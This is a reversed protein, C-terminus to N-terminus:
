KISQLKAKEESLFSSRAAADLTRDVPALAIARQIAVRAKEKDSLSLYGDALSDQANALEPHAWANLQFVALADKTRQQGLLNYGWTNFRDADICSTLNDDGCSAIFVHEAADLGQTNVLAAAELPSPAFSVASLHRVSVEKTEFPVRDIEALAVPDSKLKADLFSLAIKCAEQYGARGTERNWGNLPYNTPLPAHFQAGVMAFSTFDSHHMKEITILTRDSHRFSEVVSLDLPEDGQAGQARRLDLFAARMKEPTYGYSNTLATSLGQFGYTGDLAIVASVDANRLTLIVADIAGVSHGMVAVRTRDVNPEAQLVSWAFEMDRVSLEFDDATRSQFTEQDSPGLLSISAVIYGHSALYEFLIANSNISANLGGFYLVVPFRGNATSTDRHANMEASQLAPIEARPVSGAADDQSRQKMVTNFEAFDEPASQNVYDSFRMKTSSRGTSGPYWVNIQVPRGELDPSFTGDYSRTSKWTRSNDYRFITRFGVTYNGPRLDGWLSPASDLSSSATRIPLQGYVCISSALVNVTFLIFVRTIRMRM